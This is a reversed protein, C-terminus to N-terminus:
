KSQGQKKLAEESAVFEPFSLERYWNGSIYKLIIAFKDPTIFGPLSAVLNGGTDVFATNPTGRVLFVLSLERETTEKGKWIVKRNSGTNVRAGVFDKNLMRAVTSDGFTTQDMKRCWGCGLSYFNIIFHKGTKKALPFADNFDTWKWVTTSDASLVSLAWLILLFALKPATKKKRAFM